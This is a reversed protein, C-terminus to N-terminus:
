RAERTEAGANWHEWGRRYATEALDPTVAGREIGLETLLRETEGRLALLRVWDVLGEREARTLREFSPMGTGPVGRELVRQLEARGPAASAADTASTTRKQSGGRLDRPAPDLRVGSPGDGAGNVGHCHVCHRQYLAASEALSPYRELWFAEAAAAWTPPAARGPRAAGPHPADPPVVGEILDSFAWRWRSWSRGAAWPRPVSAYEGARVAALQDAFRVEHDSAIVAWDADTLERQGLNADRGEAIWDDLVQYGPNRPSGFLLQLVGEVREAAMEPAGFGADAFAQRTEVSPAFELVPPEPAM